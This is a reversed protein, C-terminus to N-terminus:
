ENKMEMRFMRLAVDLDLPPNERFTTRCLLTKLGSNRPRKARLNASGVSCPEILSSSLGFERAVAHAFEYRTFSGTDCAHVVGRWDTEAIDTIRKGAAPAYTVSSTQDMFAQVTEQNKLRQVVREAFSLKGRRKGGYVAALRVIAGDCLDHVALEGAFKTRSYVNIPNPLDLEDYPGAKGDFVSDTSIYVFRAAAWRSTEALFRTAEFNVRWAGGPNKECEDVDTMAAAHVIVEPKFGSVIDEIVDNETVSALVYEEGVQPFTRADRGVSLVQHGRSVAAKTVEAGVM